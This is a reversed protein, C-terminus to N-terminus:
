KGLARMAECYAAQARALDIDGKGESALRAVYLDHALRTLKEQMRRVAYARINQEIRQVYVLRGRALREIAGPLVGAERAVIARAEQKKVRREIMIERVAIEAIEAVSMEDEKKKLM